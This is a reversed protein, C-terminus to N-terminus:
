IEEAPIAIVDRFKTRNYQNRSNRMRKNWGLTTEAETGGDSDGGDSDGGDAWDINSTEINVTIRNIRM